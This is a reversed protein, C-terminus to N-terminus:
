HFVRLSESFQSFSITGAIPALAFHNSASTSRSNCSLPIELEATAVTRRMEEPKVAFHAEPEVLADVAAQLLNIDGVVEM